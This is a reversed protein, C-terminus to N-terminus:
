VYVPIEHEKLKAVLERMPPVGLGEIVEHNDDLVIDAGDGALVVTVDDGIEVSGNAALHLPVSARTPDAAGTAVMYLIKMSRQEGHGAELAWLKEYSARATSVSSSTATAQRSLDSPEVAGESLMHVSMDMGGVVNQSMRERNVDRSAM